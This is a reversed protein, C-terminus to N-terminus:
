SGEGEMRVLFTLGLYVWFEAPQPYRLLEEVSPVEIVLHGHAWNGLSPLERYPTMEGVGPQNREDM